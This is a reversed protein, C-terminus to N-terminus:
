AQVARGRLVGLCVEEVVPLLEQPAPRPDSVLWSAVLEDFEGILATSVQRFPKDVLQGAEALLRYQEETAAAFRAISERRHQELWPTVGVAEIQLVRARRPDETQHSLAARLGARIRGEPTLPACAQAERVARAMEDAIEDFLEALLQERGDYLEYFHRPSVNAAACLATLSSAAYGSTGFLELAADLLRRRRAERRESPSQGRWSRGEAPLVDETM